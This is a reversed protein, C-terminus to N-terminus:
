IELLTVVIPSPANEFQSLSSDTVIGLLTVVIPFSANELQSLSHDTVIGLLTVVIPFPANLCQVPRIDAVIRLLAISSSVNQPQAFKFVKVIPSLTIEIPFSAKAWQVLRVNIVTLFGVGGCVLNLTNSLTVLTLAQRYTGFFLM